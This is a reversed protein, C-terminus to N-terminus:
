RARRVHNLVIRQKAIGGPHAQTASDIAGVIERYTMDRSDGDQYVLLIGSHESDKEHLAVFDDCDFTLIARKERKGHEFVATDSAGTGFVDISTVVDHGASRLM